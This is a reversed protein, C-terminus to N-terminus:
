KTAECLPNCRFDVAFLNVSGVPKSGHCIVGGGGGVCM